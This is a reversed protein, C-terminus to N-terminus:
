SWPVPRRATAHKLQIVRDRGTAIDHIWGVDEGTAIDHIWGVDEGTAIDM